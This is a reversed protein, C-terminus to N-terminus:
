GFILRLASAKQYRARVLIGWLPNITDTCGISTSVLYHQAEDDDLLKEPDRQTAVQSQSCKM